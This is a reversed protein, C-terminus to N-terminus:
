SIGGREPRAAVIEDGAAVPIVLDVAGAAIIVYGAAVAVVFM